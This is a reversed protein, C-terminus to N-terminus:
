MMPIHLNPVEIQNRATYNSIATAAIPRGTDRQRGTSRYTAGLRLSLALVSSASADTQALTHRSAHVKRGTLGVTRIRILHRLTGPTKHRNATKDTINGPETDSVALQGAARRKGAQVAGPSDRYGM